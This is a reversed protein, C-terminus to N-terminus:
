PRASLPADQFRAAPDHDAVLDIEAVRLEVLTGKGARAPASRTTPEFAIFPAFSARGKTRRRAVRVIVRSSLSAVPNRPGIRVAELCEEALPQDVDGAGAYTSRSRKALSNTIRAWRM